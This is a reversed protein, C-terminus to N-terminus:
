RNATAGARNEKRRVFKLGSWDEGLAAVKVDVIGLPLFLDRLDNEAIDSVHGAAKRPWAIWLMASDALANVLVPAEAALTAHARFFAVTIDAPHSEPHRHGESAPTLDVDDPLDPIDFSDPAHLLRVRHGSKIGIKKALPTGSYGGGTANGSHGAM